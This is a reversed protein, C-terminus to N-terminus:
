VLDEPIYNGQIDYYTKKKHRDGYYKKPALSFVM